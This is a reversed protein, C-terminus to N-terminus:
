RNSSLCLYKDSQGLHETIGGFLYSKFEDCAIQTIVLNPPM